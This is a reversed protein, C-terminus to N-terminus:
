ALRDGCVLLRIILGFTSTASCLEATDHIVLPSRRAVISNQRTTTLGPTALAAEALTGVTSIAVVQRSDSFAMVLMNPGPLRCVNSLQMFCSFSARSSITLFQRFKGAPPRCRQMLVVPYM